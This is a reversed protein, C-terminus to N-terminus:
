AQADPEVPREVIGALGIELRRRALTVAKFGRVAGAVDAAAEEFAARAAALLRAQWEGGAGAEDHSLDEVFGQFHLELRSWYRREVGLQAMVSRIDKEEGRTTREGPQREPFLLWVALEWAARHLAQGGAEARQLAHQLSEVLNEDVLLDLPLPLREHRFFHVKAQDNAMGLAMYRYTAARPLAGQGALVGLWQFAAPSRIAGDKLRFLTDSDRWLSREESFRLPLWGQKPRERYVKMPDSELM